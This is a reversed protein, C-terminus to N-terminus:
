SIILRGPQTLPLESTTIMVPVPSRTASDYLPSGALAGKSRTSYMVPGGGLSGGPRLVRGAEEVGPGARPLRGFLWM